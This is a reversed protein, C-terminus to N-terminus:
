AVDEILGLAVLAMASWVTSVVIVWGIEQRGNLFIEHFFSATVYFAFWLVIFLRPQSFNKM